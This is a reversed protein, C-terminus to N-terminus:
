TIKTSNKLAKSKTFNACWFKNHGGRCPTLKFDEHGCHIDLFSSLMIVQWPYLIDFTEKVFHTYDTKPKLEQYFKCQKCINLM